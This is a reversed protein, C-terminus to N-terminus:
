SVEISISITYLSLRNKHLSIITTIACVKTFSTSVSGSCHRANRIDESANSAIKKWHYRPLCPFSTRALKLQQYGCLSETFSSSTALSPLPATLTISIPHTSLLHGLHIRGLPYATHHDFSRISSAAYFFIYSELSCQTVVTYYFTYDVEKKNHNQVMCVHSLPQFLAYDYDLRSRVDLQSTDM